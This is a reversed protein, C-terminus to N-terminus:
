FFYTFHLIGTDTHYSRVLFLGPLSLRSLSCFSIGQNPKILLSRFFSFSYYKCNTENKMVLFWEKSVRQWAPRVGQCFLTSIHKNGCFELNKQFEQISGWNVHCVVKSFFDHVPNEFVLRPVKDFLIVFLLRSINLSFLIFLSPHREEQLLLCYSM